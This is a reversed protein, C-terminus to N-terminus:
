AKSRSHGSDLGLARIRKHLRTREIGLAQAAASVNWDTDELAKLIRSREANNRTEELSSHVGTEPQIRIEM